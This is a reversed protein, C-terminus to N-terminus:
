PLMSQLQSALEAHVASDFGEENTARDPRPKQGLVSGGASTEHTLEPISAFVRM